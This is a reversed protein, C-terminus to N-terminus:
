EPPTGEVIILTSYTFVDPDRLLGMFNDIFEDYARESPFARVAVPRITAFKQAWNELADSDASGAYVHYPLVHTRIDTLGSRRFLSFLKRGMFPDFSGKLVAALAELQKVIEDAVPFHFVANGDLDAVTVSGTPKTVRALESLAQLPDDLYEFVFRCWSLDFQNSPLPIDYLDGSVFSLNAAEGAMSQGLSLREDSRDFAVVQGEPGVISSMTRAVAGTGAGADIVSMGERLGVLRLHEITESEKTKKELRAAEDRSEMLYTTSAM